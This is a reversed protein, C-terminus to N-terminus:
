GGKTYKQVKITEGTEEVTKAAIRARDPSIGCSVLESVVKETGEFILDTQWRFDQPFAPSLEVGRDEFIQIDGIKEAQYRRIERLIEPPFNPKPKLGRNYDRLWAAKKELDASEENSFTM